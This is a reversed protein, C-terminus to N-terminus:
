GIVWYHLPRLFYLSCMGIMSGWLKPFKFQLWLFVFLCASVSHFSKECTLSVFLFFFIHKETTKNTSLCWNECTCIRHCLEFTHFFSIEPSFLITKIKNSCSLILIIGQFSCWRQKIQSFISLVTQFLYIFLISKLPFPILGLLIILYFSFIASM